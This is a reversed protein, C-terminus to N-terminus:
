SGLGGSISVHRGSGHGHPNRGPRFRRPRPGPQTSPSSWVLDQLPRRPRPRRARSTRSGNRVSTSAASSDSAAGRSRPRWWATARSANAPASVRDATAAQSESASLPLTLGL